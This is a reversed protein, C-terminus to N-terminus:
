KTGRDTKDQYKAYVMVFLFVSVLVVTCSKLIYYTGNPTQLMAVVVSLFMIIGSLWCSKTKGLDKNVALMSWSAYSILSVCFTIKATLVNDFKTAMAYLYVMQILTGAISFAKFYAAANKKYGMFCYVLAMIIAICTIIDMAVFCGGASQGYKIIDYINLVIGAACLIVFFISISKPVVTKKEM